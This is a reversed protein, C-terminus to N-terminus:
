GSPDDAPVPTTGGSGLAIRTGDGPCTWRAGFKRAVGAAGVLVLLAVASSELKGVVSPAAFQTAAAFGFALFLFVFSDLLAGALNSAVVALGFRRRLRTFVLLDVGEAVVFTMASAMAVNVGLYASILAGILIGLVAVRFGLLRQVVDRLTLGVGVSLVGSPAELGFGVPVTHVGGDRATGVNLLMWNAVVITAAYAGFALLGATRSTV